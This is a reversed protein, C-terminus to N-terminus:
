ASGTSGFGGDGRATAGGVNDTIVMEPAEHRMVIGQAVREGAMVRAPLMGRNELAVTIDGRYDSDIVGAVAHIDRKTAMGSRSEIKMYVGAPPEWRVGTPVLTCGPLGLLRRLWAPQLLTTGLARLDYGAAEDSGRSPLVGSASQVGVRTLGEGAM